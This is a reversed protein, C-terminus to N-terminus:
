ADQHWWGNRAHLAPQRTKRGLYLFRRATPPLRGLVSDVARLPLVSRVNAPRLAITRLERFGMLQMFERFARTTPTHIHGVPTVNMEGRYYPALGVARVSCFEIDRPQYGFLLALRNHWSGLNPLAIAVLGGDVLVRSLEGVATDYWPLYDLMGFCTVVDFTEPDYPLAESGVEVTMAEVGKSRAEEMVRRDRDVGHVDQIALREGLTAAIGGYGCGVDLLRRATHGAMVEAMADIISPMNHSTCSREFDNATLNPFTSHRDTMM